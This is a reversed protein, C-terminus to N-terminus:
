WKNRVVGFWTNGIVDAEEEYGQWGSGEKSFEPERKVVLICDEM